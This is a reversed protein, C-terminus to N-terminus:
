NTKFAGGIPLKLLGSRYVRLRCCLIEAHMNVQDIGIGGGGHCLLREVAGQQDLLALGPERGGIWQIRRGTDFPRPRPEPLAEM